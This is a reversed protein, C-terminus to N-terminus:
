TGVLEEEAETGVRGVGLRVEFWVPIELPGEEPAGVAAEVVGSVEATM